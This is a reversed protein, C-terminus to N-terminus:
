RLEGVSLGAPMAGPLYAFGRFGHMHGVSRVVLAPQEIRMRTRTSDASRPAAAYTQFQNGLLARLDPRFPGQWAVAFVTGPSAIFERIRIGEPTMLEHVTFGARMQTSHRARLQRAEGAIAAEPGGLAAQAAPAPALGAALILALVPALVAGPPRWAPLGGHCRAAGATFRPLPIGPFM